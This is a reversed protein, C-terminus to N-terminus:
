DYEYAGMSWPVTRANGAKDANFDASLDLGGQTVEVPSATTLRYDQASDLNPPISINGSADTGALANVDSINTIATVCVGMGIDTLGEDCYLTSCGALDNNRLSAPDSNSGAEAVCIAGLADRMDFINNQIIASPHENIIAPGRSGEGVITNNSIISGVRNYIGPTGGKITNNRITPAGKTTSIGTGASITNAEIIGVFFNTLSIGAGGTISNNNIKDEFSSTSMIHIGTGSNITNNSIAVPADFGSALM